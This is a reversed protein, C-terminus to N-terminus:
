RAERMRAWSTLKTALMVSFKPLETRYRVYYIFEINLEAASFYCYDLGTSSYKLM